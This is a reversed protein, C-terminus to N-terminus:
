GVRHTQAFSHLQEALEHEGANEAFRAAAIAMLGLEVDVLTGRKDSAIAFNERLDDWRGAKADCPLLCVRAMAEEGANSRLQSEEVVEEFISRAREEEGQLVWIIGLNLRPAVVRQGLRRAMRISEALGGVATTLEGRSRATLALDHVCWMAGYSNGIQEFWKLARQYWHHAHDFEGLMRYVDGLGNACWAAGQLNNSPLFWDLADNFFSEAERLEGQAVAVMGLGRTAPGAGDVVGAREFAELAERYLARATPLDVRKRAFAARQELAWGLLDDWGRERARAAANAALEDADDIRDVAWIQARLVQAETAIRLAEDGLSDLAREVQNLMRATRTYQSARAAARAADLFGRAASMNMGAELDWAARRSVEADPLAARAAAICTKWTNRDRAGRGILRELERDVFSWGRSTSRIFGRQELEGRLSPPVFVSAVDAVVHWEDDVVEDGLVAALEIASRATPGIEGVLHELREQWLAATDPAELTAQPVLEYGHEGGRLEGREVLRRVLRIAHGPNHNSTTVIDAALDQHLGALDRVIRSLYADELPGLEIAHVNQQLDVIVRASTMVFHVHAGANMMHVIVELVEDPADEIDDLLVILPRGGACMSLSARLAHLRERPASAELDGRLFRVVANREADSLDHGALCQDVREELLSVDQPSVELDDLVMRAFPVDSSRCSVPGLHPAIGLEHAREAFWTALRSKGIGTPGHIVTASPRKSLTAARFLEWLLDREAERGVFPPIRLTSVALGAGQVHEIHARAAEPSHWDPIVTPESRHTQGVSSPTSTLSWAAGVDLLLTTMPVTESETGGLAISRETPASSPDEYAREITALEAAAEAAFRHRAFPNKATMKQLWRAFELTFGALPFPASLHQAALRVISEGQFPPAGTILLHALCGVAYLDTWSGVRGATTTFQEPAMFFPTGSVGSITDTAERDDLRAIGFDAIRLRGLKGLVNAPKIDRHVIRRAHVHALADLVELLSARTPEWALPRPVDSLSQPVWEMVIYPSGCPLADLTASEPVTGVDYVRVVRPHDLRSIARAETHFIAIGRADRIHQSTLFKLAVPAGTVVHRGEWVVGMGGSGVERIAEFSGLRVM